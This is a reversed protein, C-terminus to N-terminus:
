WEKGVRREESRPGTKSLGDSRAPRRVFKSSPSTRKISSIWRKFGTTSSYRYEAISSKRISIMNSEPGFARETCIEKLGKVSIPAVVRDPNSVEGKLALNPM